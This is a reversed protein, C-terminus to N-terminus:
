AGAGGARAPGRASTGDTNRRFVTALAYFSQGAWQPDIRIKVTARRDVTSATSEWLHVKENAIALLVEGDLM